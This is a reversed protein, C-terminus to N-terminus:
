IKKPKLVIEEAIDNEMIMQEAEEYQHDVLLQAIKEDNNVDNVAVVKDDTIIGKGVPKTPQVDEESILLLSEDKESIYCSDSDYYAADNKSVGIRESQQPTVYQEEDSDVEIISEM